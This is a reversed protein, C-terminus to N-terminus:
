KKSRERQFLRALQHEGAALVCLLIVGRAFAGGVGHLAQHSELQDLASYGQEGLLEVQHELVQPNFSLSIENSSLVEGASALIEPLTQSQPEPRVVTLASAITEGLNPAASSIVVQGTELQYIEALKRNIYEMLSEKDTPVDHIHDKPDGKLGREKMAAKFLAETPTLEPPFAGAAPVLYFKV